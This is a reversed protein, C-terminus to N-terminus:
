MQWFKQSLEEGEEGNGDGAVVIGDVSKSVDCVFVEVGQPWLVRTGVFRSGCVGWITYVDDDRLALSWPHVVDSLDRGHELDWLLRTTMVKYGDVYCFGQILGTTELSVLPELKLLESSKELDFVVVRRCFYFVCACFYVFLIMERRRKHSKIVM